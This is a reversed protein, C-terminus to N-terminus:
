PMRMYRVSWNIESAGTETLYTSCEPPWILLLPKDDLLIMKEPKKPDIEVRLRPLLQEDSIRGGIRVLAANRILDDHDSALKRAVEDAMQSIVNVTSVPDDHEVMNVVGFQQAQYFSLKQNMQKFLLSHGLKKGSVHVM